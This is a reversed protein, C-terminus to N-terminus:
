HRRRRNTKNTRKRKHTRKKHTKRKRGGMIRKIKNPDVYKKLIEIVEFKTIPPKGFIEEHSKVLDNIEQIVVPNTLLSPPIRVEGKVCNGALSGFGNPCSM